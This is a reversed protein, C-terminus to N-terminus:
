EQKENVRLVCALAGIAIVVGIMIPIAKDM